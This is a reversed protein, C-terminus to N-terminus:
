SITDYLSFMPIIISLIIIGVMVALLGIMVPEILSKVQSVKTEHLNQYHEAVKEMMLGLQGTNEGTVLMEYAVVPFAWSGKFSESIKSGKSLNVLTKNIISKYIENNTVQSLIEMSDTIFVSHNLLSAFTKTFNAVENYIIISGMVPIKMYITQMFKKFSKINNFLGRYLVLALVIGLIVWWYHEKLFNSANIVFVTIAPLAANQDEFMSVFQPVVFMLIFAVAFIAILFIVLPYTMASVMQKRTKEMSTYYESMDDLITALDGTMEATKIMNILLKPFINGQKSLATSFNEGLLLEYIIKEYIKRKSPNTSQKALIRVSDILPIGAKIYTSLQTLMFSLESSMLRRNTFLDIDYPKRPEVSIIEYGENRLFMKVEQISYAEFTSKIIQGNSNKAVYRFSTKKGLNIEQRIEKKFSPLNLDKITEETSQKNIKTNSKGRTFFDVVTLFGTYAYELVKVPFSFLYRVFHYVLIFPYMVKEM